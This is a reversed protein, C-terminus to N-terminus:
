VGHLSSGLDVLGLDLSSLNLLDGGLLGADGNLLDTGTDLDAALAVQVTTGADHSCGCGDADADAAGGLDINAAANIVNPDIDATIGVDGDGVLNLLNSRALLPLELAGIDAEISILGNDSATPGCNDSVKETSTSAGDCRLFDGNSAM